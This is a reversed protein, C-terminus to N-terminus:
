NNVSHVIMPTKSTIVDFRYGNSKGYQIIDRLANKTTTKTDHMLVMNIRNKSLGRIVNNYVASASSAGGADNSDVNWDYYNYGRNKVEVVLKSMIGKSYNRSVTNSSGGPFRIIKSEQGTIRKVRNQVTQLDNFYADVSSYVTKYNHSATHLAISHGEDYARKILSDPGSATVFFTAKVGEAKLIDLIASTTVSSPGDDFTLYIVGNQSAPVSPTAPKVYKIVNVKRTITTKNNSSDIVEYTVTYTGVQSSKINNTVKVELAEDCNDTVKYGPDKFTNNQYITYTSGGVLELKPAELDEYVLNREITTINGSKDKVTYIVKNEEEKTEINKTLDGDLNDIAKAGEDVYKKNPCVSVKEAGNLTIVPKELDKVIVTRTIEREVLMEKIKYTIKYEGLKNSNVEGSIIIDKYKIVVSLINENLYATYTVTYTGINETDVKSADITVDKDDMKGDENDKVTKIGKEQYTSGINITETKSGNLNIKLSFTFYYIFVLSLILILTLFIPIIFKPKRNENNEETKIEEKKKETEKKTNQKKVEELSTNKDEKKEEEIKVQEEKIEKVDKKTTNKKTNTNKNKQKKKNKTNNKNSNKKKKPIVNDVEM